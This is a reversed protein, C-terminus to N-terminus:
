NVNIKIFEKILGWLKELAGRNQEVVRTANIAVSHRYDSDQLLLLLADTLEAANNIQILGGAEKLLNTIQAFNFMYPGVVIPVDLAAPELVNHGGIDRL